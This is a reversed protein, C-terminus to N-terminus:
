IRGIVKEISTCCELLDRRHKDKLNLKFLDIKKCSHKEPRYCKICLELKCMKCVDIINSRKLCYECKM